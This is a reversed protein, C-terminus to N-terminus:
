KSACPNSGSFQADLFERVAATADPWKAIERDGLIVIDNIKGDLFYQRAKRLQFKLLAPPMGLDTAGYDHMFIGLMIDKGPFAARCKEVTLDLMPLEQKRWVWLNVCDIYPALIKIADKELEHAYVVAYLKLAQNHRKLAEYIKKVEARTINYGYNGILDDIVGGEINPYQRSLRSLIEANEVNSEPQAGSTRSIHTLQCILRSCNRHINMSADNVAGYVYVVNDLGFYEAGKISTDPDMSGGWSPTPGGWIWVNEKSLIRGTGKEFEAAIEILCQDMAASAPGMGDLFEKSPYGGDSKGQLTTARLRMIDAASIELINKLQSLKNM